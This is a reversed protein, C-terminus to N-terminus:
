VNKLKKYVKECAIAGASLFTFVGVCISAVGITENSYDGVIWEILIYIPLFATFSFTALGIFVWKWPNENRKKAESRFIVIIAILIFPVIM